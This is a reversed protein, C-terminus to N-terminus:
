DEDKEEKLYYTVKSTLYATIVEYIEERKEFIVRLLYEKNDIIYKKHAVKRSGYGEVVEIPSKITEKVWEEPINRRKLKRKAIPIIKIIKETNNM